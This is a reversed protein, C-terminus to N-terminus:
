TERMAVKVKIEEASFDLDFYRFNYFPISHKHVGNYKILRAAQHYAYAIDPRTSNTLYVMMDIVSDYKWLEFFALGDRDAHLPSTASPTYRRNCSKLHM